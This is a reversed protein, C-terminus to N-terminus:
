VVYHSEERHNYNRTCMWVVPIIAFVRVNPKIRFEFSSKLNPKIILMRM